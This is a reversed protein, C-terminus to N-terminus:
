AGAPDRWAGIQRAHTDTVGMDDVAVGDIEPSPGDVGAARLTDGFLVLADAASPADVEATYVTQKM